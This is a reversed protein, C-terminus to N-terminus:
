PLLAEPMRRFRPGSSGAQASFTGLEFPWLQERRKPEDSPVRDVNSMVVELALRLPSPGRRLREGHDPITRRDLPVVVKRQTHYRSTLELVINGVSSAFGLRCDRAEGVFIDLTPDRDAM